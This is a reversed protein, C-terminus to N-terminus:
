SVTSEALLQDVVRIIEESGATIADSLNNHNLEAEISELCNEIKVYNPSNKQTSFNAKLQNRVQSVSNRFEQILSNFKATHRDYLAIEFSNKSGNLSEIIVQRRTLIGLSGLLGFISARFQQKPNPCFEIEPLCQWIGEPLERPLFTEWPEVRGELLESIQMSSIQYSGELFRRSQYIPIFCFYEVIDKIEAIATIILCLETEPHCPDTTSFAIPLYHLPYDVYINDPLIFTMSNEQLVDLAEQLRRLLEQRKIEKNDQIDQLIDESFYRPKNVIWIELLDSLTAYDEIEQSNLKTANFYDPTELFLQDFTYHMGCLYKKADRFNHLALNGRHANEPNGIYEIVQNLFNQFSNSWKGPSNDQLVKILSLSIEEGLLKFNDESFSPTRELLSQVQTLLQGGEFLLRFDVRRGSLIKKLAKLFDQVVLLSKQRLGYWVEKYGYRSDPLYAKQAIKRWVINLAIDSRFHLSEKPRDKNTDDVSPQLGFPLLWVGQSQYRDCFPIASRLYNLRSTTQDILAEDEDLFFEISVVNELLEIRTCDLHLKVYCIVDERNQSFWTQYSSEDYRYFGQIFSCFDDLPLHFIDKNSLFTNKTHQWVPLSVECLVYWDLLRGTSRADITLKEAQLSQSIGSLFTHSLSFGRPVQVARASIEQLKYFNEAREGFSRIMDSIIDVKVTPAFSTSLIFSGASGILKYAEDFLSRNSEFFNREGAEFIGDLFTVLTKIDSQQSKEVLGALFAEIDMNEKGIANSIFAALNGSPIAEFTALATIAPNPFGEHLIQTLLNSRVWHLGTLMGSELQLYEGLLSQLIQQPDGKFSITQFLKEVLVPTGLAHALTTRRLIEIKAPDEKQYSIQRIQDRLRDELMQGQTVLYVYEILLHPEGIKEYTWEPSIASTHVKEQTKLLQFIQRAEELDLRPELIEYNTLSEQAFRQWDEDRVTVLIRINLAACQQAVSAWLRTQWRVDDILLLIPLGLNARFQLYNRILEVQEPTEAIRLVFVNEPSRTEYAYRYLLTSKGQGSSSRLVCIKSANLANDIKKLWTPRVIDLGAVVHGSRTGKGDFFDAPTADQMWVIRNILGQGYAQFETERALAEGVIGRVNELDLRTITKRDKAWELFKAVLTSIYIEVAESGLKYRETVIAKLEQWIIEEPSSLIKLKRVLSNSEAESYGVQTCLNRFKNEVRAREHASLSELQTLREIDGTLPFGVALVFGCNVDGRHVPLFGALPDKLQSWKWSKDASKVQIYENHYQFGVLDVDEIGELRLATASNEEHYLDFARFLSYIIQYRIGRINVAGHWRTRFIADLDQSIEDNKFVSTRTEIKQEAKRQPTIRKSM